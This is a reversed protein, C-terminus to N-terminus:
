LCHEMWVIICYPLKSDYVRPKAILMGEKLNVKDWHEKREEKSRTKGELQENMNIIVNAGVSNVRDLDRRICEEVPIDLFSDNVVVEALGKVLKSINQFHKHHINTDDCIVNYGANLYKLILEDRTKIIFQENKKSWIGGDIMARLDDKNVRKYTPNNKMLSKSFTTKGSAPLGRNIIVKLM